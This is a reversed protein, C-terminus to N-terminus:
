ARPEPRPGGAVPGDGAALTDLGAWRPDTASPPCACGGDRLRGCDPCLGPCDPRCLPALPLELLLADRAMPALDLTEGQLPYTEEDLDAQRASRPRYMERVRVSLFADIPALCRRCEGQWPASVTGTVEIGGDLSDLTAEVRVESGAPVRSDAVRLEGLSGRRSEHQRQGHVRRLRTVPVLWPNTVM